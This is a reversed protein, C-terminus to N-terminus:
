SCGDSGCAALVGCGAASESESYGYLALFFYTQATLLFRSRPSQSDRLDKAPFATNPFEQM